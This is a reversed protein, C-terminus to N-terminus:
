YILDVTSKWVGVLTSISSLLCCTFIFFVTYFEKCIREHFHSLINRLNRIISCKLDSNVTTSPGRFRINGGSYCFIFLYDMPWRDFSWQDWRSFCEHVWMDKNNLLGLTLQYWDAVGSDKLWLHPSTTMCHHWLFSTLINYRIVDYVTM